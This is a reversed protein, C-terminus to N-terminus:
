LFVSLPRCVSLILTNKERFFFRFILKLFFSFFEGCAMLFAPWYIGHFKLIDKGLVQVSAPWKGGFGEQDKPYGIASFYNVLADLWVYVTQTDDGPVPIAWSVRNSPRSISIDPLPDKLYDLLIKEFKKPKVKTGKEIWNVVKDQMKSMEFMYNTEETWEVPHGSELSVKSGDPNEKM